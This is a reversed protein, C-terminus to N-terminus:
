PASSSLLQLRPEDSAKCINDDFATTLAELLAPNIEEDPKEPSLDVAPNPPEFRTALQKWWTAGIREKSIDMELYKDGIIQRLAKGDVTKFRIIDESLHSFHLEVSREIKEDFGRRNDQNRARKLEGKSPAHLEDLFDERRPPRPAARPEAARKAAASKRKVVM